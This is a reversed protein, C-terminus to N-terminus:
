RQVVFLLFITRNNNDDTGAETKNNGRHERKENSPFAMIEARHSKQRVEHRCSQVDSFFNVFNEFIEAKANAKPASTLNVNLPKLLLLETKPVLM